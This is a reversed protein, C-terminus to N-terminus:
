EWSVSDVRFRGYFGRNQPRFRGIGIFSGGQSLTNEFVAETILDDLVHFTMQGKWERILPYCKKVRSGGGRKGDGPMWLWESEIDEGKVGTNMGELVLLGSVFRKTYTANRRGPIKTGLFIAADSMLHMFAMPPVEVFGNADLHLHERWTREEYADYDEQDERPSTKFGSQSYPSLSALSATAIRM